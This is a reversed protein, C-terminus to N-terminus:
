CKFYRNIGKSELQEVLEKMESIIKDRVSDDLNYTKDTEKWTEQNEIEEAIMRQMCGAVLSSIEITIKKEM